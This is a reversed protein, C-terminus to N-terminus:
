KSGDRGFREFYHLLDERWDPMPALKLLRLVSNELTSNAPRKASDPSFKTKCPIVSKESGWLRLIEKAFDYRSAKGETTLHMIGAFPIDILKDIFASVSIVSTPNGYQDDVVSINNSKTRAQALIKGTFSLGGPGYLWALRLILHDPCHHQIAQEALLKSRGYVNIAKPTDWENYPESKDGAFVHDTSIAILRASFRHCAIAINSSGIVNTRMASDVDAEAKDVNAIAACHVVVDPRCESVARNVASPCAIDFDERGVPIVTHHPLSTKLFRGLMGNAGTILVRM